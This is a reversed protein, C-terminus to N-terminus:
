RFTLRIARPGAFGIRGAWASCTAPREGRVGTAARGAAPRRRAADAHTARRRGPTFDPDAIPSPGEWTSEWLTRQCWYRSVYHERTLGHRTVLDSGFLFRTPHRCILARIADRARRCRACRGSPRAPTSTAPEPVERADGGPPRPAGPRRGHPRRDLRLGPVDGDHAHVASTSTPSPASSPRTRHVHASGSTPTASTSWSSRAGRGAVGAAPGRDAVPRRRAPRAGPRAPGGLVQRDERGSRPVPRATRYAADDPEDPKKNIMGNFLSGTASARGAAAPHGAAPVHQRDPRHRVRRRRRADDRGLREVGQRRWGGAPGAPKDGPSTM